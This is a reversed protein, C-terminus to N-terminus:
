EFYNWDSPFECAGVLLEGKVAGRAYEPITIGDAHAVTYANAYWQYILCNEFAYEYFKDYDEQTWDEALCADIMEQLKPDSAGAMNCGDQYQHQDLYTALTQMLYAGKMSMNHLTVDYTYGASAPLYKGWTVDDYEAIECNIGIAQMNAQLVQAAAEFSATSMIMITLKEGAYGSAALCEKAKEVNYPYYEYGTEWAENYGNQGAKGLAKPVSGVGYLVNEVVADNDACYAIAKRLNVDQCPSDATQNFLIECIQPSALQETVVGEVASCDEVISENLWQAMQVTGNEVALAMQTTETLFNFEIVDVNQGYCEMPKAEKSKNMWYDGNAELVVKSGTIFEKIVYPGTGVPKASMGDGAAEYSEKTVIMDNECMTEFAGLANNILKVTLTYDGTVEASDFYSSGGVGAAKNEQLCWAVDEATLNVGNSDYIDEYLTIEYTLDDTKKYDKMLVSVFEGSSFNERMGLRQYVEGLIMNYYPNAGAFPSLTQVTNTLGVTVKTKGGANEASTGGGSSAGGKETGSAEAAKGAPAASQSSGCGACLSMAMAATLVMTLIKKM